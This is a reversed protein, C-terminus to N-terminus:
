DVDATRPDMGRLARLNMVGGAVSSMAHGYFFAARSLVIQELLGRFDTLMLAWSLEGRRDGITLLDDMFVAGEKRFGELITTNREDTAVYFRIDMLWRYKRQALASYAGTEQWHRRKRSFTSMQDLKYYQSM